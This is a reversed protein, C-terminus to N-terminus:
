TSTIHFTFQNYNQLLINKAAKMQIKTSSIQCLLGGQGWQNLVFNTYSLHWCLIKFLLTYNDCVALILPYYSLAMLIVEM